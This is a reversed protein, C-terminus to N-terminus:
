RALVGHSEFMPGDVFIVRNRDHIELASAHSLWFWAPHTMNPHTEAIAPGDNRRRAVSDCVNRRNGRDCASRFAAGAVLVFELRRACVLRGWWRVSQWCYCQAVCLFM